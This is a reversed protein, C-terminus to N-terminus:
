RHLEEWVIDLAKHIGNLFAVAEARADRLCLATLKDCRGITNDIINIRHMTKTEEKLLMNYVYQLDKM